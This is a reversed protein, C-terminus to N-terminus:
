SVITSRVSEIGSIRNSILWQYIKMVFEVGLSYALPSKFNWNIQYKRLTQTWLNQGSLNEMKIPITIVIFALTYISVPM